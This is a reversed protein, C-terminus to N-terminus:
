TADGHGDRGVLGPGPQNILLGQCAVAGARPQITGPKQMVFCPELKLFPQQVNVPRKRRGRDHGRKRILPGIEQGTRDNHRVVLNQRQVGARMVEDAVDHPQVPGFVRDSLQHLATTGQFGVPQQHNGHQPAFGQM